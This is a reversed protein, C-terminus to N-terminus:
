VEVVENGNEQAAILTSLTNAGSLHSCIAQEVRIGNEAKYITVKNAGVHTCGTPLSTADLAYVIKESDEAKM